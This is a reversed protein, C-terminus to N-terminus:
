EITDITYGFEEILVVVTKERAFENIKSVFCFFFFVVSYLRNLAYLMKIYLIKDFNKDKVEIAARAFIIECVKDNHVHM